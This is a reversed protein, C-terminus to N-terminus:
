AMLILQKDESLMGQLSASLIPPHPPTGTLHVCSPSSPSCFLAACAVARGGQWGGQLANILHLPAKETGKPIVEVGSRVSTSPM